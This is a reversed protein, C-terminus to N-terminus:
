IISILAFSVHQTHAIVITLFWVCANRLEFRIHNTNVSALNAPIHHAKRMPAKKILIILLKRSAKCLKFTCKSLHRIM